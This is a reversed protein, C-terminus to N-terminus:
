APKRTPYICAATKLGNLVMHGAISECESKIIDPPGVLSIRVGEAAVTYLPVPRGEALAKDVGGLETACERSEITCAACPRLLAVFREITQQCATQKSVREHLLTLFMGDATRTRVVPIYAQEDEVRVQTLGAGCAFLFIALVLYKM